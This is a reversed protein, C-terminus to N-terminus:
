SVRPKLKATKGCVGSRYVLSGGYVQIIIEEKYPQHEGARTNDKKRTPHRYSGTQYSRM